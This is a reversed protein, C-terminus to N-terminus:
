LEKQVLKGEVLEDKLLEYVYSSSERYLGTRSDSLKGFTASSYVRKMAEAIPIGNDEVNFVILDQTVGEILAKVVDM